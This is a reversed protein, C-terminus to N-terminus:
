GFLKKRLEETRTKPKPATKPLPTSSEAAPEPETPPDPEVGYYDCEGYVEAPTPRAEPDFGTTAESEEAPGLIEDAMDLLKQIDSKPNEIISEKFPVTNGEEESTYSQPIEEIFRSPNPYQTQRAFTHTMYLKDEARTMGVYCLRREEELESPTGFSRRHPLLGEEVGIMFVIPYELGKATHLTMLTVADEEKDKPRDSDSTAQELFGELTANPTSDEYESVAEILEKLNDERSQAKISGGAKMAHLYGTRNLIDSVFETVPLGTDFSAILEHFTKANQQIGPHITLIENARGLAEYLSIGMREAFQEIQELATIGIGRRPSNIIRKISLNDSPNLIIQMYALAGKIEPRDYFREGSIVTYPIGAGKLTDEIVRSQSNVRYLVAIDKFATGQEHHEQIKELVYKGEKGPDIAEHCEIHEGDENDTWITKDKRTENNQIVASAANLITKTSRYNQELKLVTADPYDKEFDLINRIDAQRWGYISQDDDGVVCLNRTLGALKNVLLYQGRNTDQYEDVMIYRFQQQYKRLVYPYEEFLEITLRILDDFDVGNNRKLLEQYLPYTHAVTQEFANDEETQTAYAEPSLLMNKARSIEALISGIDQSPQEIYSLVEKILTRQDSGDYITFNNEYGLRMINSRRFRKINSQTSNSRLIHNCTAHFTGIWSPTAPEGIIEKVRSKMENTAKNTFTVALIQDPPIRKHRILHAIRHTIVRTKGSGAGSLILLPGETHQVAERQIPNLSKLLSDM